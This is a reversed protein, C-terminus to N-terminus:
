PQTVCRVSLRSPERPRGRNSHINEQGDKLRIRCTADRVLVLMLSGSPGSWHAYGYNWRQEHAGSPSDAKPRRFV